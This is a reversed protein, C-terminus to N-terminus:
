IEILARLTFVAQIDKDPTQSPDLWVEVDPTIQICPTVQARWFAEIVYESRRTPDTPDGWGGGIGILDDTWNGVGKQVWAGAMSQQTSGRRKDARNYKFFAAHRDGVDQELIMTMGRSYAAQETADVGYLQLQYNAKGIGCIEGRYSVYGAYSYDGESFTNFDWLSRPKANADTFGGGIYWDGIINVTTAFGLGPGTLTSSPSSSMIESVFNRTDDTAYDGIDYLDRLQFQGIYLEIDGDALPQYWGVFRFLDINVGSDNIGTTLGLANSMDAASTSTYQGIHMHYFIATGADPCNHCPTWGVITHSQGNTNHDQPGGQTGNHNMLTYYAQYEIGTRDAWIKRSDSIRISM